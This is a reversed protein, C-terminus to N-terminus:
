LNEADIVARVDEAEITRRETNAVFRSGYFRGEASQMEFGGSGELTGKKRNYVAKEASLSRGRNDWYRVSKELTLLGNEIVGMEATVSAIYEGVQRVVIPQTIEERTEYHKGLTSLLVANVREYGYDILRYDSFELAAVPAADGGARGSPEVLMGAVLSVALITLTFLWIKM